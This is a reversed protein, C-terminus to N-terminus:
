PKVGRANTNVTLIEKYPHKENVEGRRGYGCYSLVAALRSARGGFVGAFVNHTSFNLHKRDRLLARTRILVVVVVLYSIKSLKNASNNKRSCTLGEKSRLSSFFSM